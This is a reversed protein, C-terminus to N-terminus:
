TESVVDLTLQDAIEIGEDSVIHYDIGTRGSLHIRVPIEIPYSVFLPDSQLRWPNPALRAEPMIVVGPEVVQSGIPEIYRRDFHLSCRVGHGATKGTNVVRGRLTGDFREAYTPPGGRKGYDIPQKPWYVTIKPRQRVLYISVGASGVAAIAAIGSIILTWEEVSM